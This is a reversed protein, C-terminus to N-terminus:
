NRKSVGGTWFTCGFRKLVDEEPVKKFSFAMIITQSLDLCSLFFIFLASEKKSSRSPRKGGVSVAAGLTQVYLGQFFTKM